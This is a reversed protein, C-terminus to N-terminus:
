FSEAQLHLTPLFKKSCIEKLLNMRTTIKETLLYNFITKLSFGDHAM